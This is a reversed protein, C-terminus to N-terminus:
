ASPRTFERSLDRTARLRRPCTPTKDGIPKSASCAVISVDRRSGLAAEGPTGHATPRHFRLRIV